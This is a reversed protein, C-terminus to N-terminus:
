SNDERSNAANNERQRNVKESILSNSDVLAWRNIIEKNRQRNRNQDLLDQDYKKAGIHITIGCHKFSLRHM